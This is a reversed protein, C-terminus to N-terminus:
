LIWSGPGSPHPQTRRYVSNLSKNKNQRCEGAMRWVPGIVTSGSMWATPAPRARMCATMPQGEKSNCPLLQEDCLQLLVCILSELIAMFRDTKQLLGV